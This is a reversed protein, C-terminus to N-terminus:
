RLHDTLISGLALLAVIFAWLAAAFVLGSCIFGVVSAIERWRSPRTCRRNIGLLHWGLLSARKM